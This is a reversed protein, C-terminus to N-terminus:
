KNKIHLFTTYLFVFFIIACFLSNFLLENRSYLKSKAAMHLLEPNISLMQDSQNIFDHHKHILRKTVAEPWESCDVDFNDPIDYNCPFLGMSQLAKIFLYKKRGLVM